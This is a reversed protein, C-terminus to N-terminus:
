EACLGSFFGRVRGKLTALAQRQHVNWLKVAGGWSGAALIEGDPSFAVASVEGAKGELTALTQRTDADWLKVAGDQGGSALMGNPAFAVSFVDGTHGELPTAPAQLEGTEWLKM